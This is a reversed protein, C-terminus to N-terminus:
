GPIGKSDLFSIQISNNLTFLESKTNEMKTINILNISFSIEQSSEDEDYSKLNVIECNKNLIEIIQSLEIKKNETTSVTLFLNAISSHNDFKSAIIIYSATVGFGIITVWIQGAGMGLGIGIALFLYALEEPSKIATRFRVISLAGVLGLSLALSSKVIAIVIM